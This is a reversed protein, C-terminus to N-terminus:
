ESAPEEVVIGDTAPNAAGQAVLAGDQWEGDAVQGSSAYTMTGVGQRRGSRFNGSYVDGNTYTAVGLGSIEGATWQGEYTFGDAMTIKGSGDRQGGSFEGEYM